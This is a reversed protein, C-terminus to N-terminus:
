LRVRYVLVPRLWRRKVLNILQGNIRASADMSGLEHNWLDIEKIEAKLSFSSLRTLFILM